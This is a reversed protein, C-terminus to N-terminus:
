EDFTEDIHRFAVGISESILVGYSSCFRKLDEDNEDFINSAYSQHLKIFLQAVKYNRHNQDVNELLNAALQHATKDRNRIGEYISPYKAKLGILWTELAIFSRTSSMTWWNLIRESQRANLNLLASIVILWQSSNLYRIKRAEDLNQAFKNILLEMPPSSSRSNTVSLRLPYDVFKDLYMVGNTGVGYFAEVTQKIQERNWLLLFIVGEVNFLHKLRELLRIAYAPSCRDLEDVIVVLKGGKADKIHTAISKKLHELTHKRNALEEFKAKIVDNSQDKLIDAASNLIEQDVGVVNGAAKVVIKAINPLAKAAFPAVADFFKAKKDGSLSEGISSILTLAPDDVWDADFVDVWVTGFEEREEILLRLNEGFWTKGVGWDGDIAVVGKNLRKILQYLGEAFQKRDLADNSFSKSNENLM